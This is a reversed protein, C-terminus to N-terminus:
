RFLNVSLNQLASNFLEVEDGLLLAHDRDSWPLLSELHQIVHWNEEECISEHDLAEWEIRVVALLGLTDETIDQVSVEGVIELLLVRLTHRDLGDVHRVLSVCWVHDLIIRFHLRESIEVSEGWHRLLFEELLEWFALDLIAFVYRYSFFQLLLELLCLLNIHAFQVRIFWDLELGM